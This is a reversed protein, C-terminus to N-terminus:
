IWFPINNFLYSVLVVLETKHGIDLGIHYRLTQIFVNDPKNRLLFLLRFPQQFETKLRETMPLRQLHRSPCMEGDWRNIILVNYIVCRWFLALRLAQILDVRLKQRGEVFEADREVLLFFEGSHGDVGHHVGGRHLGSELLRQRLVADDEHREALCHFLM